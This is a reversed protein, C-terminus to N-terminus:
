GASPRDATFSRPEVDPRTSAAGPRPADLGMYRDFEEQFRATIRENEPTTARTQLELFWENEEEFVHHMVAGELHGLKDLYDQGMPDITELAALQM